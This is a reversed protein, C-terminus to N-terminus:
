AGINYIVGHKKFNDVTMQLVTVIQCTKDLSNGAVPKWDTMEFYASPDVHIALHETNLFYMRGAPCEPCWFIPVGKFSIDGFGLTIQEGKWACIMQLANAINEYAEYVEQTTIIIDPSKRTGAKWKSCLNYMHTMQPVLDTNIVKGTFDYTQNTMWDNASRDFGGISGVTPTTSILQPLSHMELAGPSASFMSQELVEILSTKTNEMKEELYGTLRAAGRNKRDDDWYRVISTGINRAQYVMRTLSQEEELGFQAGRGFWKTNANMKGYRIPVEWHTGEPMKKKIKGGKLMMDFFPTKQFVQDTVDKRVDYWTTTFLNDLQRSIQQLTAAM